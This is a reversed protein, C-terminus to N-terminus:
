TRHRLKQWVQPLIQVIILVLTSVATINPALNFKSNLLLVGAVLGQLVFVQWRPMQEDDFLHPMAFGMYRRNRPLILSSVLVFFRILFLSHLILFVGSAGVMFADFLSFPASIPQTVTSFDSQLALAFLCMLYWLYVLAKPIPALIRKTLGITILGITPLAFVLAFIRLAGEDEITLALGLAVIIHVSLAAQENIRPLLRPDVVGFYVLFLGLGVFLMGIIVQDLSVTYVALGSLKFSTVLAIVTVFATAIILQETSLRLGLFGWQRPPINCQRRSQEWLVVIEVLIGLCFAAFASITM